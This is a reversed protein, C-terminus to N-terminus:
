YLREMYFKQTTRTYFIEQRERQFRVGATWSIALFLGIHTLTFVHLLDYSGTYSIQIEINSTVINNIKEDSSAHYVIFHLKRM